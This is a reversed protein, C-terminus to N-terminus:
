ENLEGFDLGVLVTSVIQTYNADDSLTLINSAHPALVYLTTVSPIKLSGIDTDVTPNRVVCNPAQVMKSLDNAGNSLPTQLHFMFSALSHRLLSGDNMIGFIVTTQCM